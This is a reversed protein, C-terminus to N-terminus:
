AQAKRAPTGVPRDSPGVDLTSPFPEPLAIAGVKRDGSGVHTQGYGAAARQSGDRHPVTPRSHSTALPASSMLFPTRPEGSAADWVRVAYEVANGAAEGARVAPLSAVVM